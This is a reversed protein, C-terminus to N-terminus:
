LGEERELEVKFMPFSHNISYNNLKIRSCVGGHYPNEYLFYLKKIRSHVLGFLCMVCPEIVSFFIYDKLYYVENELHCSTIQTSSQKSILKMTLHSDFFPKHKANTQKNKMHEIHDPLIIDKTKPNYLLSNMVPNDNNFIYKVIINLLGEAESESHNYLMNSYKNPKLLSPWTSNFEQIQKSSLPYTIPIQSHEILFNINNERIKNLFENFENSISDTFCIFVQNNVEDISKVRKIFSFDSFKLNKEDNEQIKMNELQFVKDKKLFDIIKNTNQKSIRLFVASKYKIECSFVDPLIQLISFAKNKLSSNVKKKFNTEIEVSFECFETSFVPKEHLFLEM